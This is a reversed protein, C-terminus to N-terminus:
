VLLGLSLFVSQISEVLYLIHEETHKSSPTIRFRETGREVTPYNIPQIYIGFVDRLMKSAQKCLESDGVIIPIIHSNNDLFKIKKDRLLFKLMKVNKRQLTRENNSYKLHKVNNAIGAVIYPPLSTTFIFGRGISRICDVINKSAVIYGGIVGYAKAFTGQIIDVKDSLGLQSIMGAGDDGYMGVAHVEDVYLLAGYKKCLACIETLPAIDGDMSYVSEIMVFKDKSIDYQSLLAELELVNNHSFIHKTVGKLQRLGDIMSAHNMQDSFIIPENLLSIISSIAVFNAIYGSTFVLAADKKHLDAMLHELEVIQSTNGSINRTGGSGTGYRKICESMIDLTDCHESMALYDNSCWVTIEKRNKPDWAIPFRGAIREIQFFERYDGSHILETIKSQFVDEYVKCSM